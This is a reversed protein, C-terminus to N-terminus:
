QGSLLPERYGAAAIRNRDTLVQIIAKLPIRDGIVAVNGDRSINVIVASVSCYDISFLSSLKVVVRGSEALHQKEAILM